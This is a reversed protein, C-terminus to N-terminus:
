HISTEKSHNPDSYYGVIYYDAKFSDDYNVIQIFDGESYSQVVDNLAQSYKYTLIYNKLSSGCSTFSIILVLLIFVITTIKKIM